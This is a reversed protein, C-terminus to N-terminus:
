ELHDDFPEFVPVFGNESVCLCCVECGSCMMCFNEPLHNGCEVCEVRM